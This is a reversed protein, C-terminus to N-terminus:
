IAWHATSQWSAAGQSAVETALEEAKDCDHADFAASLLTPRLWEDALGLKRARECAAVVFNSVSVASTTARAIEPETSAHCIVLATTNISTSSWTENM